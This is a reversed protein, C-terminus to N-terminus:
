LPTLEAIVKAHYWTQPRMMLAYPGRMIGHVTAEHVAFIAIEATFRRVEAGVSVIARAPICAEPNGRNIAAMATDLPSKGIYHARLLAELQDPTDCWLSAVVVAKDPIETPPAPSRQALAPLTLLFLLAAMGVHRSMM